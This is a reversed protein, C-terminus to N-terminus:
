ISCLSRQHEHYQNGGVQMIDPFLKNPWKNQYAKSLISCACKVSCIVIFKMAFHDSKDLKPLYEWNCIMGEEDSFGLDLM